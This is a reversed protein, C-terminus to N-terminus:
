IHHGSSGSFHAPLLSFYGGTSRTARCLSESLLKWTLWIIKEVLNILHNPNYTMFWCKWKSRSGSCGSCGSRSILDVIQDISSPTSKKSELQNWNTGLCVPYPKGSPSLHFWSIIETVSVDAKPCPNMLIVVLEGMGRCLVQWGRPNNQM